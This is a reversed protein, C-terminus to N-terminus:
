AAIKPYGSIYTADGVARIAPDADVADTMAEAQQEPSIIGAQRLIKLATPTVESPGHLGVWRDITPLRRNQGNLQEVNAEM